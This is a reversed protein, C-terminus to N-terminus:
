WGVPVLGIWMSYGIVRAEAHAPLLPIIEDSSWGGTIDWAVSELGALFLGGRYM